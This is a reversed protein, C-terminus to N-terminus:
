AVAVIKSKKVFVLSTSIKGMPIGFLKSVAFRYSALQPAYHKKKSEIESSDVSDTKWDIVEARQPKGENDYFVVLRDIFGQVDTHEKLTFEAFQTGKEVRVAFAQENFVSVNGEPKALLKQLASSRLAKTFSVAAERLGKEGLLAADQAPASVMLSEITPVVGELWDIQEFWYHVITGWGFGVNTKGDFRESIAIKGGGELSSPSASAIGHGHCCAVEKPPRIIVEGIQSPKEEEVPIAFTKYWEPDSGNATWVIKDPDQAQLEGIIQLLLGDLKKLHNTSKRAPIVMHLAHKARTMAVYLLCLADNVQQTHLEERMRKYEPIDKDLTDGAYMGACTPPQCPDDHLQMAKPAKWIPQNLDCVVVADFSLGKSKHVTMVQVLSSAPDPVQTKKVLKVFESPRLGNSPGIDKSCSEAFEILQWLRLRERDDVSDILEEAFDSVVEAYGKANLRRRITRCVTEFTEDAKDSKWLIGLHRGLESSCVHFRAVTNGPDDAMLLASLIVTVAPSDTLPNGGFESAPVAHPENTRLAHVIRQIQQKTNGRVLIGIEATPAHSHIDAVIEVVKEISLALETKLGRPDVGATQIVANGVQGPKASVHHIFDNQWESAADCAYDNLLKAEHVKEFITNVAHLVPSSCRWSKDLKRTVSEDLREPLNRLLAPEGGRFGYLSQKVDGVIFLSRDSEAQHIEDVIPKLVSWQTLSTDQFEDILMHDISSDLRYQLEVLNKMVEIFSLRFTVDDFSYLGAEHKATSWSENLSHMLSHTAKNKELLRNALVGIAHQILPQMASVIESEIDNGYYDHKDSRINKAMGSTVFAKWDCRALKDIAKILDTAHRAFSPSCSALTNIAKALDIGNMTNFPKGWLWASPETDRVSNYAQRQMERLTKGVPVKAGSKSWRLLKAFQETNKPDSTLSSVTSSFVEDEHVGDLISWGPTMGLADSFSQATKVFFSDITGINLRHMSSTLERLLAECGVQGDDLEPVHQMLQHMADPDLVAQAISELIRDRIEGAAKRSFTTALITRPDVGSKVLRLFRFMLEQTKGSGALAEIIEFREFRKM